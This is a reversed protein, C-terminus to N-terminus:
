MTAYSNCGLLAVGGFIILTHANMATATQPQCGEAWVVDGPQAAQAKADEDAEADDAEVAPARVMVDRAM